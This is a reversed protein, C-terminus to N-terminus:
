RLLGKLSGPVDDLASTLLPELPWSNATHVFLRVGGPEALMAAYAKATYTGELALGVAAARSTADIAAPTPLAYGAGYQGELYRVGGLSV